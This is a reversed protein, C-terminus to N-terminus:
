GANYAAAFVQAFDNLKVKGLAQKHKWYDEFLIGSDITRGMEVYNDALDEGLGGQLMGAKAQDDPFKVWPLEPKGVAKGLAAAIDDTGVEDSAIYRVGHGKFKLQLLEEAAVAAIDSTDAIPFRRAPVSFNGGAIGAQKILGLNAFLNYFFYSPRIHLINIDSLTNLNKETRHLGAIPGTGAELHAGVSSLHVVYKVPNATLAALYNKGVQEIAQKVNTAAYNPPSMLYVADAGAFIASLFAVDDVSGIAAKAGKNVLEQLNAANRGIVTVKHGAALLAETLPKSIHGAGGTIVYQM